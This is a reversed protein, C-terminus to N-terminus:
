DKNEVILEYKGNIIQIYSFHKTWDGTNMYIKKGWDRIEPKHTHSFIIFDYDLKKAYEALQRERKEVLWDPLIRKRSSRSMLIGTKLVITPHILSVIFKTFKSRIIAKFLKYKYDGALYEDGHTVFYSKGDIIGAFYEPYTEAKLYNKIFDDIWFDHNGAVYILRTGSEQLDSLAKLIPFFQKIISFRWSVWLDFIDGNLILVDTNGKLSKLFHLFKDYRFIEDKTKNEFRLHDDSAIIVKM